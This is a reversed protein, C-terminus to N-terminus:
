EFPQHFNPREGENMLWRYLEIDQEAKKEWTYLRDIKELAKERKSILQKPEDAIIQLQNKFNEILQARDGMAVKYGCSDDVLEAPGAYDAIVPVIGLAMAELVVGGGFERVSPFVFLDAKVLRGQIEDNPVFGHLCVADQVGLKQILAELNEQEPGAGFVDLFMKGDRLLSQMAEIAMDAGKYPVLRGIFAARIVGDYNSTNKLSFRAKSIANEAMYFIKSRVHAPMQDRTAKSGVVIATANNRLSKYGPLLKYANRVVNLWEKEKRQMEQFQEPWAVGGNLPGVVFPVAMKKLRKALFSPSTPSVPTVRHVIDYDGRKLAQKFQKWIRYEFYPYILSEFATAVTWALKQGGRIFLSLKYIPAAIKETNIVTFQKGERWGFREIAEKNRMQTVLHADCAESLAHAHSWGVLPVSTWEPNAAEAIVLVRVKQHSM